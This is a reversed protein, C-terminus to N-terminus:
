TAPADLNIASAIVVQHRTLTARVLRGGIAPLSSAGFKAVQARALDVVTAADATVSLDAGEYTDPAIWDSVLDVVGFPAAPTAAFCLRAVMRQLVPSWGALLIEGVDHPVPQGARTLERAVMERTAACTECLTVLHEDFGFGPKMMCATVVGALFGYHGRGAILGGTNVLPFLNAVGPYRMAPHVNLPHDEVAGISFATDVAVVIKEPTAFVDLVTM